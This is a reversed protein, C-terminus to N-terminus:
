KAAVLPDGTRHEYIQFRLFSHLANIGASSKTTMVVRGGQELDEYRYQV